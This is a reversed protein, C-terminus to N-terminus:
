MLLYLSHLYCAAKYVSEHCPKTTHRSTNIRATSTSEDVLIRVPVSSQMTSHQCLLILGHRYQQLGPTIRGQEVESEAGGYMLSCFNAEERLHCWTNAKKGTLLSPCLQLMALFTPPPPPPVSWCGQDTNFPRPSHRRGILELTNFIWGLACLYTARLFLTYSWSFELRAFYM